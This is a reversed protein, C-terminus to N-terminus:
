RIGTESEIAEKLEQLSMELNVNSLTFRRGSGFMDDTATQVHVKM